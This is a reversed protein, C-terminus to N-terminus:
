EPKIKAKLMDYQTEISYYAHKCNIPFTGDQIKQIFM